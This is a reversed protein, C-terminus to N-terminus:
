FRGDWAYVDDPWQKVWEETAKMLAQNYPKLKEIDGEKPEPHEEDWRQRAMRLAARSNPFLRLIEDVAWNRGEKDNAIKYGEQLALLWEKSGLNKERLKKLDEAVQQRVQAHEPVPKLKFELSWLNSYRFMDEPETSSALRARLRRSAERMLEQDGNRTLMSD